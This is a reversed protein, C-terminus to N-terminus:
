EGCAVSTRHYGLKNRRKDTPSLDGANGLALNRMHPTSSSRRIVASTKEKSKRRKKVAQSSPSPGAAHSALAPNYEIHVDADQFTTTAEPVVYATDSTQALPNFSMAVPQLLLAHDLRPATEKAFRGVGVAM